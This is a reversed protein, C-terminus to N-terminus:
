TLSGRNSQSDAIRELFPLIANAAALPERQVILHPGAIIALEVGPRVRRIAHSASAGVLRDQSAQLYLVPVAIRAAYTTVDCALVSRLRSALVGPSVSSIANRVGEVLGPPASLGALLRRIAFGPLPLRLLLGAMASLVLRLLGRIPSRIYGACIVLGVLNAPPNAALQVALPTSFSEALLVFPESQPIANRVLQLLEPFSLYVQTPYRVVQPHVWAPLAALFDSFLDGSGDMGPLLLLRLRPREENKNPIPEGDM